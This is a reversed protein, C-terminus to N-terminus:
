RLRRTDDPLRVTIGQADLWEMLPVAVQRRPL